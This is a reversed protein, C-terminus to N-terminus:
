CRNSYDEWIVNAQQSIVDTIGGDPCPSVGHIELIAHLLDKEAQVMGSGGPHHAIRNCATRLPCFTTTGGYEAIPSTIEREAAKGHKPCKNKWRLDQHQRLSFAFNAVLISRQWEPAFDRFVNKLISSQRESGDDYDYSELINAALNYNSETIGIVQNDSAAEADEYQDCIEELFAINADRRRSDHKERNTVSHIVGNMKKRLSPNRGKGLDQRVDLALFDVLAGRKSSTMDFAELM